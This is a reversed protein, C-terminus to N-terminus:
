WRLHAEPPWRSSLLRGMAPLRFVIGFKSPHAAHCEYYQIGARTRTVRLDLITPILHGIGKM